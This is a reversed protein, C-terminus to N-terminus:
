IYKQYSNRFDTFWRNLSSNCTNDRLFILSKQLEGEDKMTTCDVIKVVENPNKVELVSYNEAKDYQLNWKEPMTPFKVKGSFYIKRKYYKEDDYDIKFIKYGLEGFEKVFKKDTKDYELVVPIIKSRFARVAKKIDGRRKDNYCGNCLMLRRHEKLGLVKGCQQCNM